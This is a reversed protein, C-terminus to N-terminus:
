APPAQQEALWREAEALDYFAEVPGAAQDSLAAYMHAMGFLVPHTAVVAEPGRSGHRASLTGIRHFIRRLEETTPNWTLLRLDVLTRYAWAGDAAQRELWALVDPVGVPDRGLITLRQRVHDLIYEIPM